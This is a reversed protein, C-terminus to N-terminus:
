RRIYTFGFGVPPPPPCYYPRCWYPRPRGVVIVPEEQVIVTRPRAVAVPHGGSGPRAQQMVQIVRPDVKNATLFEIDGTSLQFTSNTNHIQGIIVNPDVGQQTLRVVESIGLPPNQAVAQAEAAAVAQAQQLERRDRVDEAHGALGGIGAGALGGVVAGTRPNGTASGVLAGAATGIAGGGLAGAEANSLSACGAQISVVAALLGMLIRRFM